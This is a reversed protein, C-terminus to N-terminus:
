FQKLHRQTFSGINVDTKTNTHGVKKVDNSNNEIFLTDRRLAYSLTTFTQTAYTQLASLHKTRLM